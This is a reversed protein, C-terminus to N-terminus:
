AACDVGIPVNDASMREVFTSRAPFADWFVRRLSDRFSLLKSVCCGATQLFSADSTFLRFTVTGPRSLSKVLKEPGEESFMANLGCAALLQRAGTAWITGIRLRILPVKRRGILLQVVTVSAIGIPASPGATVHSCRWDLSFERSPRGM